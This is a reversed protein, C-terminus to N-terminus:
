GEAPGRVRRIRDRGVRTRCFPTFFTVTEAEVPFAVFFPASGNAGAVDAAAEAARELDAVTQADQGMDVGALAHADLLEGIGGPKGFFADGIVELRQRGGSDDFLGRAPEADDVVERLNPVLGAVRGPRHVGVPGEDLM